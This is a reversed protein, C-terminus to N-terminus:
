KKDLEIQVRKVKGTWTDLVIAYIAGCKVIEYRKNDNM